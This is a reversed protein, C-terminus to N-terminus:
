YDNLFKNKRERIVTYSLLSTVQEGELSQFHAVSFDLKVDASLLATISIISALGYEPSFAVMAVTISQTQADIFSETAKPTGDRVLIPADTISQLFEYFRHLCVSLM